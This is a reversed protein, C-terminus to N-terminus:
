KFPENNSYMHLMASWSLIGQRCEGLVAKLAKLWTEHSELAKRFVPVREDTVGGQHVQVLGTMIDEEHLEEKHLESGGCNPGDNSRWENIQLIIGFLRDGDM